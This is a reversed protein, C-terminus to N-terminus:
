VSNSNSNQIAKFKNPAKYILIIEGLSPYLSTEILIYGRTQVQHHRDEFSILINWEVNRSDKRKRVQCLVLLNAPICTHMNEWSSSFICPASVVPNPLAIVYITHHHLSYRNSPVTRSMLHHSPPGIVQALIMLLSSENFLVYKFSLARTSKSLM